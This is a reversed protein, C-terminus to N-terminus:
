LDAFNGMAGGQNPPAPTQYAQQQPPTPPQQYTRQPQPAAQQAPQAYDANNAPNVAVPTLSAGAPMHQLNVTQGFMEETTKGTQIAEGYGVLLCAGLNVYIGPNDKFGNGKTTFYIQAYDGTKIYNTDTTPEAKNGVVRCFTPLLKSSFSVVWCGAWGEKQCPAVGSTNPVQSDGDVIKWSFKARHYQSNADVPNNMVGPFPGFSNEGWGEKAAALLTQYFRPWDPNTKEIALACFYKKDDPKEPRSYQKTPNGQVIRGIPSLNNATM